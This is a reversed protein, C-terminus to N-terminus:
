PAGLDNQFLFLAAAGAAIALVGNLAVIGWFYASDRDFEEISLLGLPLSTAGKSIGRYVQWAFTLSIAALVFTLGLNV